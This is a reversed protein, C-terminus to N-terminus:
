KVTVGTRTMLRLIINVIAMIGTVISTQVEPTLSADFGTIALISGIAAIGNVWVTKSAWFPKTEM